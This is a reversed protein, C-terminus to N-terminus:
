AIREANSATALFGKRRLERKARLVVDSSVTLQRRLADNSPPNGREAGDLISEYILRETPTLRDTM